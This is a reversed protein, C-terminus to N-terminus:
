LTVKKKILKLIAENHNIGVSRFIEIHGEKMRIFYCIYSLVFNVTPSTIMTPYM